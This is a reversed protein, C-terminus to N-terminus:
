SVAEDDDRGRKKAADEGAGADDEIALEDLLEELDVQPVEEDNEDDNQGECAGSAATASTKKKGSIDKYLLIDKRLEKDREIEDEFEEREQQMTSKAQRSSNGEPELVDLTKIKWNRKNRQKLQNPFHKRVLIVDHLQDSRYKGIDDNNFNMNELLYGKVVDGPNLQAGLHTQVIWERSGGVESLLCVTAVAQQFKGNVMGTLSLDIVYFDVMERYSALVNFPHKWYLTSTIEGARLTKTDLFVISSYVKHVLVLPGIGGLKNFLQPPMIILDERCLPAIEVSFTHHQVATNSKSDHSVLQVADTRNCPSQASIFDVFSMAHSKHGYFFDLGDPHSEIRTVDEHMRHKLIIQELYLFTRKHDVKQRLQVVADWQPQGTAVKQCTPCQQWLVEYDVQLSQQIVTNAFIEKQLTIKLKLRKSHPETWLFSADVLVFKALGKIKKLCITMLERSELEARGWYKPPQHYRFCEPCYVIIYDKQLGDTIDVHARICSPCMNSPNSEILLGCVCCHVQPIIVEDGVEM